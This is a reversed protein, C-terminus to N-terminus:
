YAELDEKNMMYFIGDNILRIDNENKAISKIYKVGEVVPMNCITEFISIMDFKKFAIQANKVTEKLEEDLEEFNINKKMENIIELNTMIEEKGRPMFLIDYKYLM